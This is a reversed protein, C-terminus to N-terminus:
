KSDVSSQSNMLFGFVRSKFHSHDSKLGSKSPPRKTSAVEPLKVGPWGHHVSVSTPPHKGKASTPCTSQVIPSVGRKCGRCISWLGPNGIKAVRNSCDGHHGNMGTAKKSTLWIPQSRHRFFHFGSFLSSAVPCIWRIEQNLNNTNATTWGM